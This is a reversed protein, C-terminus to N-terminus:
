SDIKKFLNEKVVKCVECLKNKDERLRFDHSLIVNAFLYPNLQKKSCDVEIDSNIKADKTLYLMYGYYSIYDFFKTIKRKNTLRIWYINKVKPGYNSMEEKIKVLSGSSYEANLKRYKGKLNHFSYVPLYFEFNMCKDLYKEVNNVNLIKAFNIEKLQYPREARAFSVLTLNKNISRKINIKEESKAINFLEQADSSLVLENCILSNNECNKKNLITTYFEKTCDEKKDFKNKFPLFGFNSLPEILLITYTNLNRRYKREHINSKLIASEVIYYGKFKGLLNNLIELNKDTDVFKIVFFHKGMQSFKIKFVENKIDQTNKTLKLKIKKENKQIYLYTKKRQNDSDQKMKKSTFNFNNPDLTFELIIMNNKKDDIEFNERIQKLNLKAYHNLDVFSSFLIKSNKSTEINKIEKSLEGDILSKKLEYEYSNNSFRLSMYQKQDGNKEFDFLTSDSKYHCKLDKKSSLTKGCEEECSFDPNIFNNSKLLGSFPEFQILALHKNKNIQNEMAIDLKDHVIHNKRCEILYKKFLEKKIDVNMSEKLKTSLVPNEPDESIIWNYNDKKLKIEESIKKDAYKGIGQLSNKFSCEVTDQQDCNNIYNNLSDNLECHKSSVYKFPHSYEKKKSRWSFFLRNSEANYLGINEEQFEDNGLFESNGFIPLIELIKYSDKSITGSESNTDKYDKQIFLSDNEKIIQPNGYILEKIPSKDNTLIKEWSGNKKDWLSLMGFYNHPIIKDPDKDESVRHKSDKIHYYTLKQLAFNKDAFDIIEYYLFNEHDIRFNRIQSNYNNTEDFIKSIPKDEDYLGETLLLMREKQITESVIEAYRIVKQNNCMRCGLLNEGVPEYGLIIFAAKIEQSSSAVFDTYPGYITKYLMEQIEEETFSIDKLFDRKLNRACFSLNNECIQNVEDKIIPIIKNFSEDGLVKKDFLYSYVNILNKEEKSKSKNQSISSISGNLSLENITKSFDALFSYISEKNIQNAKCINYNKFNEAERVEIEGLNVFHNYTEIQNTLKKKAEFYLNTNKILNAAETFVGAIPLDKIGIKLIEKGLDILAKWFDNRCVDINQDKEKEAKKYKLFAAVAKCIKSIIKIFNLIEDPMGNKQFNNKIIPM